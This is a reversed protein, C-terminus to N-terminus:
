LRGSILSTILFPRVERALVLGCKLPSPSRVRGLTRHPHMGFNDTFQRPRFNRALDRRNQRRTPDLACRNPWAEAAGPTPEPLAESILRTCVLSRSHQARIGALSPKRGPTPPPDPQKQVCDRRGKLAGMGEASQVPRRARPARKRGALIKLGQPVEKSLSLSYQSKQSM